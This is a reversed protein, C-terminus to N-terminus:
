VTYINDNKIMEEYSGRNSISGGKIFYINNFNKLTQLRHTIVILTAKGELDKICDVIAKETEIDLSSTAEDFLLLKSKRYLARAIGIRQRQGGSLRIGRDGVITDFKLPQDLIFDTLQALKAARKIDEDNIDHDELGFAINSKITDDIIFIDQPIYGIHKQWALYNNDININIGDVMIQGNTPKLLGLIIAALTSKGSGTRGIIGISSGSKIDLSLNKLVEKDSDPYKYTINKLEVNKDLVKLMKNKSLNSKEYTYKELKMLERVVLDFSVQSGRIATMAATIGNFSPLMRVIAAGLLGLTPIITDISRDNAIFLIAVFLIIIIGLVELFLRPLKNVISYFFEFRQTKEASDKFKNIFYLGRDLIKTDKISGFVHNVLKLQNGLHFQSILSLKTIKKRVLFHYIITFFSIVIFVVLVTIPDVLLLLIIVALIVMVERMVYLIADIYKTAIAAENTVNRGMSAPNRNLHLYYPSNVYAQFLRKSTEIKLNRFIKAQFYIILFLFFNKFLFIALLIFAAFLIQYFYDQGIFFNTLNSHPLYTILQDPKLFLNIFIPISGIGVMELLSSICIGFFLFGIYIRQNKNLLCKIKKIV